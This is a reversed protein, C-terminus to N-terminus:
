APRSWDTQNAIKVKERQLTCCASSHAPHDSNGENYRKCNICSHKSPDDKQPCQTTRHEESCWACIDRGSFCAQTKHGYKQCMGCRRVHINDSVPCGRIGIKIMRGELIHHRIQPSLKCIASGFDKVKYAFLIEFTEGAGIQDRLWGNSKLIETRLQDPDVSIYEPIHSIKMKPVLLKRGFAKMSLKSEINKAIQSVDDKENFKLVISGNRGTCAHLTANINSDSLINAVSKEVNVLTKLEPKSESGTKVIVTAAKPKMVRANSKVIEAYQPKQQIGTQQIMKQAQSAKALPILFNIIKNKLENIHGNIEEFQAKKTQTKSTYVARVIDNIRDLHVTLDSSECDGSGEEKHSVQLASLDFALDPGSTM